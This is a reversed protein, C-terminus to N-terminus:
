KVKVDCPCFGTRTCLIETILDNVKTYKDSKKPLRDISENMRGLYAGPTSPTSVLDFALLELDDQVEVTEGLQKVSGLARSSIGLVVGCKILEKAINGSPTTLIELEGMLDDGDWWMQRILHSVNALNVVTTDPHDLEGLARSEKVPGDIYKQAERMLVEKPYVRGNGNKQNAKQVIGKLRLAGGNKAMSETIMQPTINFPIYDVLLEKM